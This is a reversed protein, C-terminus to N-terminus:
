KRKRWVLFSIMVIFPIGIVLVVIINDQDKEIRNVLQQESCSGQPGMCEELDQQQSDVDGLYQAYVSSIIFPISTIFMMGAIIILLRTKM